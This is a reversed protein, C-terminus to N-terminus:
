IMGTEIRTLISLYIVDSCTSVAKKNVRIYSKNVYRKKAAMNIVYEHQASIAITINQCKQVRGTYTQHSVM